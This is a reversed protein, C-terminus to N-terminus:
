PLLGGRLEQVEGCRDCTRIPTSYSWAHGGITFHSCPVAVDIWAPIKVEWAPERGVPPRFGAGASM